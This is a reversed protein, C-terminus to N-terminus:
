IKTVLDQRCDQAPQAPVRGALAVAIAAVEDQLSLPSSRDCALFWRLSMMPSHHSCVREIEFLTACTGQLAPPAFVVACLPYMQATGSIQQRLCTCVLPLGSINNVIAEGELTASDNAPKNCALARRSECRFLSTHALALECAKAEGDPTFPRTCLSRGLAALM